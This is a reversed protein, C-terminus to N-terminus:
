SRNYTNQVIKSQLNFISSNQFHKRPIKLGHGTDDLKLVQLGLQKKHIPNCISSQLTGPLHEGSDEFWLRQLICLMTCPIYWIIDPINYMIYPIM